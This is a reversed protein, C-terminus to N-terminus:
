LLGPLYETWHLCHCGGTRHRIGPEHGELTAKGMRHVTGRWGSHSLGVARHVPDVFYLPMCDAYYFTVLTIGPIDTIWAM